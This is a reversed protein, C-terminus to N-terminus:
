QRLELDNLRLLKFRKQSARVAFTTLAKKHAYYDINTKELLDKM